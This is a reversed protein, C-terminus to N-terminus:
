PCEDVGGVAVVEQAAPVRRCLRQEQQGDLHVVVFVMGDWRQAMAAQDQLPAADM